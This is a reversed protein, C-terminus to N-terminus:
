SLAEKKKESWPAFKLLLLMGPIATVVCFNFFNFWGLEKALFGTISSMFVRPVGMLASFLAYQTATFRTNTIKGMFAAFAATAMGIALNELSIIVALLIPSHGVLALVSFGLIAFMQMFGFIWLARNIGIKLTLAGGIFAGCITAWFGFLKTIAGIETKTFGIDLYFPTTLALAMNDGLKYLLIFLLMVLADKRQFYEVFPDIVSEKFNRPPPAFLKPEECFITTFIGPIMCIAMTVYVVAWSVHDALIMGGGSVVLMGIRYGYIYYSSGIGLEEEKLSERRYADIVIDQSASFFTVLFAVVILNTVAIEGTKPDFIGMGAIAAILILQLIILWGRRRGMFPLTFRDFIPSWLFKITYPLGILSMLGIKELSVGAEKAQAQLLSITILLPIGASIGMFFATLLRRNFLRELFPM